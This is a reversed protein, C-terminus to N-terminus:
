QKQEQNAPQDVVRIRGLVQKLAISGWDRSDVSIPVNDGLVFCMGSPIVMPYANLDDEPRLRYEVSRRITLSEIAASKGSCRIAIPHQEGVPVTRSTAQADKWAQTFKASENLVCKAIRTESASWFAIELEIPDDSTIKGRVSLRDVGFLKRQVGVNVSYDDMVQSPLNQDHVSVHHYILWSEDACYWRRNSDRTWGTSETENESRWRSQDRREDMDVPFLPLLTPLMDEARQGNVLLRIGSVSLEDGPLAIIRKLHMQGDHMVAVVEGRKLEQRGTPEVRVIDAPNPTAPSPLSTAQGCHWCIPATAAPEIRWRLQCATCEGWTTAGWFTPVM